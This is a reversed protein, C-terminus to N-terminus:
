SDSRLGRDAGPELSAVSSQAITAMKPHGLPGPARQYRERVTAVLAREFFVGAFRTALFAAGRAPVAILETIALWRASTQPTPSISSADATSLAVSSVGSFGIATSDVNYWYAGAVGTCSLHSFPRSQAPRISHRVM